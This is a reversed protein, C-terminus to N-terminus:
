IRDKKNADKVPQGQKRKSVQKYAQRFLLDNISCLGSTHFHCNAGGSAEQLFRKDAEPPPTDSHCTEPHKKVRSLREPFKPLIDETTSEM